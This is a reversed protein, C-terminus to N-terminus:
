FALYPPTGDIPNAGIDVVKIRAQTDTLANFPSQSPSPIM